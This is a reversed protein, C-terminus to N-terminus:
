PQPASNIYRRLDRPCGSLWASFLGDDTLQRSENLFVDRSFMWQNKWFPHCAPLNKLRTFLEM